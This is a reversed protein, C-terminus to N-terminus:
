ALFKLFSLPFYISHVRSLLSLASLFSVPCSLPVIISPLCPNPLVFVKLFTHYKGFLVFCFVSGFWDIQFLSTPTLLTPLEGPWHPETSQLTTGYVLLNYTQNGALCPVYGPPPNPGLDAHTSAALRHKVRVNINRGRERFYFKLIFLYILSYIFLYFM